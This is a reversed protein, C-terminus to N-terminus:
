LLNHKDAYSTLMTEVTQGFGIEQGLENELYHRFVDLMLNKQQRRGERFGYDFVRSKENSRDVVRLNQANLTKM